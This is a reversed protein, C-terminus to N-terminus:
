SPAALDPSAIPQQPDLVADVLLIAGDVGTVKVKSDAPLDPGNVAWTGDGVHVRGRGNTIADRLTLTGFHQEGRRNLSPQDSARHCRKRLLLWGIVSLIALGGFGVLQLQWSLAPVVVLLLGIIFASAAFWIFVFRPAFVELILLLAALVRWQWYSLSM